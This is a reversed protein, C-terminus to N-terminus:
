LLQVQMAERPEKSMHLRLGVVCCILFFGLVVAEPQASVALGALAALYSFVTRQFHPKIRVVLSFFLFAGALCGLPQWLPLLGLLCGFSVAIGKGGRFGYFVPFAHGVVPAALVLALALTPAGEPARLFLWVPFFGKFLDGLLTVMGCRFGGLQFANATGPNGDKSGALIDKGALGASVRAFLVSGSLYGLVTFFLARTM